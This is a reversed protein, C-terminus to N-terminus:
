MAAKYIQWVDEETLLFTEGITNKSGYYPIRGAMKRLTEDTINGKHFDSIRAPM